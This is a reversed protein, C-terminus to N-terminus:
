SNPGNLPEFLGNVFHGCVVKGLADIQDLFGHHTESAQYRYTSKIIVNTLEGSNRDSELEAFVLDADVPADQTDDINLKSLGSKIKIITEPDIVKDVSRGIEAWYEIQEAVSRKNLSASVKATSMLSKELRIPSASKAM